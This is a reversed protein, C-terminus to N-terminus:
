LQHVESWERAAVRSVERVVNDMNCAYLGACSFCGVELVKLENNSTECIDLTWAPDPQYDVNRLVDNVFATLRPSTDETLVIKEDMRYLSCSVVQNNVILLRWERKINVPEAVVVLTEPDPDYLAMLKIEKDWHNKPVIKGNFAKMGSSPRIFVCDSSGVTNFLFEKRRNLEGFPLMIYNKNLLYEGFKNYYYLCDFQRVNCFVGPVWHSVRQIQRAFQISGYVVVCENELFLNEIHETGAYPVYQVTKHNFGQSEIASKIRDINDEFISQELLWNVMIDSSM